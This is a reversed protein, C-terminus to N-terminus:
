EADEEIEEDSDEEADSLTPVLFTPANIGVNEVAWKTWATAIPYASMYAIRAATDQKAIDKAIRDGPERKELYVLILTDADIIVPKSIQNQALGYIASIAQSRNSFQEPTKEGVVTLTHPKDLTLTKIGAAKIAADITSKKALAANITAATEEGLATFRKAMEEREAAVVVVTKVEDLTQTREPDVKTLQMVYIENDGAVCGVSTSEIDMDFVNTVFDASKQIAPLTSSLAFPALTKVPLKKAKAVADFGKVDIDAILKENVDTTANELAAEAILKKEIDAKVEAFPIPEQGKGDKTKRMYDDQFDDYYQLADEEAVKVDKGYAATPIAFYKVTRMEPLKYAPLHAEYYAKIAADALPKAKVAPRKLTAIRITAKDHDASLQAEIAMPAAWGTSAQLLRSVADMPAPFGIKEAVVEFNESKEFGLQRLFNAYAFQNFIGNADSFANIIIQGIAAKSPVLDYKAAVYASALIEWEAKRRDSLDIDATQVFRLSAFTAAADRQEATVETGGITGIPDQQDVPASCSDVVVFAFVMLGLFFLWLIKSRILRNFHYIFM